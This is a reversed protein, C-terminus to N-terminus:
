RTENKPNEFQSVVLFKQDKQAFGNSGRHSEQFAPFDHIGANAKMAAGPPRPNTQLAPENQAHPNSLM